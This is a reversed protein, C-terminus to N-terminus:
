GPLCYFNSLQQPTGVSGNARLYRSRAGSRARVACGARLALTLIARTVAFGRPTAGNM